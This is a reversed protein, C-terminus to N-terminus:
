ARCLQGRPRRGVVGGYSRATNWGRTPEGIQVLWLTGTPLTRTVIHGNSCMVHPSTFGGVLAGARSSRWGWKVPLSGERSSPQRAPVRSVLSRHAFALILRRPMWPHVAQAGAPAGHLTRRVSPQRHSGHGQICHQVPLGDGQITQDAMAARTNRHLQCGLPM